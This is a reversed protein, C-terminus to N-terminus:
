GTSLLVLRHTHRAFCGFIRVSRCSVISIRDGIDFPKRVLVFLIGEFYQASASGIMFAFGVLITSFSIIISLPDLGILALCVSGIILYYLWNGVSEFSRDIQCANDISSTLTRIDRYVADVSKVFDLLTINGNKDPSLTEFLRSSETKSLRGTKEDYAVAEVLRSFRLNGNSNGDKDSEDLLRRFVRTASEICHKRTDALGFAASFPHEAVM